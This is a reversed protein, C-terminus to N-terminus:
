LGVAKAAVARDLDALSTMRPVRHEDNDRIMDPAM